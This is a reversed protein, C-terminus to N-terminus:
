VVWFRGDPGGRRARQDRARMWNMLLGCVLVAAGFSFQVAPQALPQELARVLPALPRVLSELDKFGDPLRTLSVALFDLAVMVLRVSAHALEGGWQRASERLEPRSLATLLGFTVAATASAYVWGFVQLWYRRVRSPLVRDLIRQQLAWSPEWSGARELRDVVRAFAGLQAACDACDALHARLTRSEAADMEGDLFVQIREPSPCSV